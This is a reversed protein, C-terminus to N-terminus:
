AADGNLVPTSLTWLAFSTPCNRGSSILAPLRLSTLNLTPVHHLVHLSSVAELEFYAQMKAKSLGSLLFEGLEYHVQDLLPGWGEEGDRVERERRAEFQTIGRGYIQAATPHEDIVPGNTSPGGENDVENHPWEYDMEANNDPLPVECDELDEHDEYDEAIQDFQFDIYDEPEILTMKHLVEASPEDNCPIDQPDMPDYTRKSYALDNVAEQRLQRCAPTHAVHRNVKEQTAFQKPCYKCKIM